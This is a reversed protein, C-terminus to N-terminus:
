LTSFHYTTISRQLLPLRSHTHAHVRVRVYLIV